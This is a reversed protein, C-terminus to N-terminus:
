YLRMDDPYLHHVKSIIPRVKGGPTRYIRDVKEIIINISTSAQNRLNQILKAEIEQNYGDDPVILVKLTNLDEQIMQAEVLNTVGSLFYTGTVYGRDPFYLIDEKRGELSKMVPMERGCACRQQGAKIAMDGVRYRILVMATNANVFPTFAVEGLSGNPLPKGDSSVIETVGSELNDHMVGHECDCWFCSPDSSTYQDFVRCGFAEELLQRHEPLLTEASTIIARPNPLKLGLRRGVKAIVQMSSPFGDILEPNFRNIAEIYYPVAQPSLHFASCILSNGPINWRWYSHLDKAQTPPVINRASFQARRPFFPDSLGAWHRLRAVFGWKRSFSERTFYIKLPTGTTGSTSGKLYKKKDILENCFLEENGRLQYKDLTPLLSLNELTKFDELQCGLKNKMDRYYPVHQFALELLQRMRQLQYDRFQELRWYQSTLLFNFQEQMIKTSARQYRFQLGKLSVMLNQFWVPSKQYISEMYDLSM